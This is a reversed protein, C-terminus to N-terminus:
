TSWVQATLIDTPSPYSNITPPNFGPIIAGPLGTGPTYSYPPLFVIQVMVQNDASSVPGSIELLYNIGPTQFFGNRFLLVQTVPGATLITFTPNMGNRIGIVSGDNTSFQAPLNNLPNDQLYDMAALVDPTDPLFAGWTDTDGGWAQTAGAWTGAPNQQVAPIQRPAFRVSDPTSTYDVPNTMLLGNRFLLVEESLANYLTGDFTTVQVPGAVQVARRPPLAVAPSPGNFDFTNFDGTNFTGPSPTM